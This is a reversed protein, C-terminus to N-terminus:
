GNKVAEFQIEYYAVWDQFEELSLASLEFVFRKKRDALAYLNM